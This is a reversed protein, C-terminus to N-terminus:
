EVTFDHALSKKLGENRESSANIERLEPRRKLLQYVEESKFYNNNPYLEKYIENIFQYDNDTDITWREQGYDIDSKVSYKKFKNNARIYPTVHERESALSANEWADKLVEYRFVECDLGDPFTEDITNSTYDSEQKIHEGIVWDIINSDHLPCDATIRVVNDAKILKALQYFRDLVDDESGCFVRIGKEACLKVINLDQELITTAVFVEDIEKSETVRDVVHELITKDQIKMLVKNPLRSSGTRAQIIAINKM